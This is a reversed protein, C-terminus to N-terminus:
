FAENVDPRFAFFSGNDIRQDIGIAINGPRGAANANGSLQQMIFHLFIMQISGIETLRTVDARTAM